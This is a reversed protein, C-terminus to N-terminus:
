FHERDIPLLVQRSEEGIGRPREGLLISVVIFIFFHRKCSVLRPSCERDHFHKLERTDHIGKLFDIVVQSHDLHPIILAYNQNIILLQFDEARESFTFLTFLEFSELLYLFSSIFQPM